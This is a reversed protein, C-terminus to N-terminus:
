LGDAHQWCLATTSCTLHSPVEPPFRSPTPSSRTSSSNCSFAEEDETLRTTEENREQKEDELLCTTEESRKQMEDKLLRSWADNNRKQEIRALESFRERLGASENRWWAELVASKDKCPMDGLVKSFTMGYLDFQTASKLEVAGTSWHEKLERARIGDPRTAWQQTEQFAEESKTVDLRVAQRPHRPVGEAAAEAQNKAIIQRNFFM